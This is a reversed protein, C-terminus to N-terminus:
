KPDNKEANNILALELLCQQHLEIIRGRSSDSELQKAIDTLLLALAELNERLKDKDGM